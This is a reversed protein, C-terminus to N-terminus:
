AAPAGRKMADTIAQHAIDTLHGAFEAVFADRDDAPLWRREVLAAALRILQEKIVNAVLRKVIPSDVLLLLLKDM